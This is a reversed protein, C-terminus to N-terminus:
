HHSPCPSTCGSRRGPRGPTRASWIPWITSWPLGYGGIQRPAAPIRGALRGDLHGGDRVECVVHGDDAWIRLVGSGGDHRISNTTLEGVALAVDELGESPLGLRSTHGVAFARAWALDRIGFVVQEAHPVDPLEANYV